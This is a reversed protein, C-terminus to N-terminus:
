CRDLYKKGVKLKPKGCAESATGSGSIEMKVGMGERAIISEHSDPTHIRKKHAKNKGAGNGSSVEHM